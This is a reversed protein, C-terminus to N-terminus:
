TRQNALKLITGGCGILLFLGFAAAILIIGSSGNQKSPMGDGLSQNIQPPVNEMQQNAEPKVKNTLPANSKAMEDNAAPLELV